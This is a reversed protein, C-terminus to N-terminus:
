VCGLLLLGRRVRSGEALARHSMLLAASCGAITQDEIEGFVPQREASSFRVGRDESECNGLWAV